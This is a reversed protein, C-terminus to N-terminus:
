NNEWGVVEDPLVQHCRRPARVRGRRALETHVGRPPDHGCPGPPCAPNRSHIVSTNLDNEFHSRRASRGGRPRGPGAPGAARQSMFPVIAGSAGLAPRRERLSEAPSSM